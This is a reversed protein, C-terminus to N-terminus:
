RPAEGRERAQRAQTRHQESDGEMQKGSMYM